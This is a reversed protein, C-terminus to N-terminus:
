TRLPRDARTRCPRLPWLRFRYINKTRCRGADACMEQGCSVRSCDVGLELELQRSRRSEIVRQRDQHGKIEWVLGQLGFIYEASSTGIEM